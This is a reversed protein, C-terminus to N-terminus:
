LLDALLPPLRRRGPLLQFHLEGLFHLLELVLLLVGLISFFSYLIPVASVSLPRSSRPPAAAAAVLRSAARGVLAEYVTPLSSVSSRRTERFSSVLAKWM